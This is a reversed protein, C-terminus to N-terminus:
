VVSKRDKVESMIGLPYFTGRTDINTHHNYLTDLDSERVPRLTIKQGNLM